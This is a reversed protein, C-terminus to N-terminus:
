PLILFYDVISQFESYALLIGEDNFASIRTTLFYRYERMDMVQYVQYFLFYSAREVAVRFEYDNCQLLSTDLLYLFHSRYRPTPQVKLLYSVMDSNNNRFQVFHYKNLYWDAGYSNQGIYVYDDDCLAVQCATFVFFLALIIRKMVGRVKRQKLQRTVATIIDAMCPLPDKGSFLM